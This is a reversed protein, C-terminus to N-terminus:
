SDSPACGTAQTTAATWAFHADPDPMTAEVVGAFTTLDAQGAHFARVLAHVLQSALRMASAADGKACLHRDTRRLM